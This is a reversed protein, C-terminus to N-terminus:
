RENDVFAEVVDDKTNSTEKKEQISALPDKSSPNAEEQTSELLDQKNEKGKRNYFTEGDQSMQMLLECPKFRKGYELSLQKLKSIVNPIGLDDAYRLIGGRFPPFGTGMIMAMDLYPANKVVGEELCMAAENIMLHIMRAVITKDDILSNGMGPASLLDRVEANPEPSKRNYLYFGKEEKKGLIKKNFMTDTLEAVKMRSGYAQELVKAAKYAVDLGVEDALIFPGMPMGFTKILQDIRQLDVGEELMLVAENMYPMLIRNVLFGACNGVVIPTKGLKKTLAVTTAITEASTKEGPIIEVLPMRNVPNFFHMGIFREPHKMGRSMESISLTSTNSCIITSEPVYEEIESFLSQKIAMDEVIAEVIFDTHKFGSYSTTASIKHMKVRVESPSLKKIKVLQAYYEGAQEFGKALNKWILDKLRVSFGKHSFLWAIGGGMVGAGVVACSQIPPSPPPPSQTGPDKKLEQSTYFLQILNKSVHTCTLAAFGRQEERAAEEETQTFTRKIIDLAQLPAPYHGQTKKILDNKVKQFLLFRGLPNREMLFHLIGKAKRRRIISQRGSKSLCKQIFKKAEEEKFEDSCIADALRIKWAKKATVPKGGLIMKLSETLGILRPLRVTGGWGPLLGLSVEPLGLSTKEHKTVMRYTCALAFELGGGLCVGDILAISPFPLNCLKDFVKHGGEVKELADRHNQIGEIEQIDAGAVFIGEKSSTILLAKIQANTSLDELISYLEKMVAASLKNVKEDPLDFNLKAIGEADITLHFAKKM